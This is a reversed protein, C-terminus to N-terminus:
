KRKFKSIVKNKTVRNTLNLELTDHSIKFVYDLKISATDSVLNIYLSNKASKWTGSETEMKMYPNRMNFDQRFKGDESFKLDWVAGGDRLNKGTSVRKEPGHVMTFEIIKWNGVLGKKETKECGMALVLLAALIFYQLKM